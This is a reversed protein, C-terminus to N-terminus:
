FSDTEDGALFVIIQLLCDRLVIFDRPALRSPQSRAGLQRDAIWEEAATSHFASMFHETRAKGSKVRFPCEDHLTSRLKGDVLGTEDWVGM